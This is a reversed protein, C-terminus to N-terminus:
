VKDKESNYRENDSILAKMLDSAIGHESLFNTIAISDKPLCHGGFGQEGTDELHTDVIGRNRPYTLIRKIALWEEDMTRTLEQFQNGFIVKIAFFSNMAYKVIEAQTPTVHFFGQQVEIGSDTHHRLVIEALDSHDTGVVLMKQQMFDEISHSSRLFEPCFAIKLHPFREQMTKTFGPIVTSKIVVSFGRPLRSMLSEIADTDCRGTKKGTPTPLCIYAINCNEIIQTLRTDLKSDHLYLTHTDKFAEFIANGVTGLGVIGIRM